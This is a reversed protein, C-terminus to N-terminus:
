EDLTAFWAMGPVPDKEKQWHKKTSVAIMRPISGKLPFNIHTVANAQSGDGYVVISVNNANFDWGEVNEIEKLVDHYAPSTTNYMTSVKFSPDESKRWYQKGNVFIAIDLTGGMARIIMKQKGDTDILDFVVDNFDTDCDGGLDEAMYRKETVKAEPKEEAKVWLVLDSVGNGTTDFAWFTYDTGDINVTVEKYKDLPYQSAVIPNKESGGSAQSIKFWTTGSPLKTFDLYRSRAMITNGNTWYDGSPNGQALWYNEGTPLHIGIRKFSNHQDDGTIAYLRFYVNKYIGPDWIKEGTAAVADLIKGKPSQKLLKTIDANNLEGKSPDGSEWIWEFSSQGNTAFYLQDIQAAVDAARTGSNSVKTFDWEQDPSVSGFRKVFAQEYTFDKQKSGYNEDYLSDHSCSVFTASTMLVSLGLFLVSKKM